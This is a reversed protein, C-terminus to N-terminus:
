VIPPLVQGALGRLSYHASNSLPTTQPNIEVVTAGAELALWPLSAAPQVVGSTGIALFVQCHRAAESAAQLAGAPLLEGFWVVDHRLYSGCNPCRPPTETFAGRGGCPTKEVSCILRHINGHLEIVGRSGARHHLGDIDQTILAIGPRNHALAALAHHGPNPEAAAMREALWEHWDWVLKPNRRFGEVSTLEEPDYREWLGTLKERFTPVGSEASIGAGTLMTIRDAKQVMERLERPIDM